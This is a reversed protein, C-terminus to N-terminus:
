YTISVRTKGVTVFEENLWQADDHLLRICGHSANHNPVQGGHLAFAGHFHMCYPMPAGGKPLPFLNSKCEPGKSSYITYTGTVTKCSKGTDACFDKGGSARGWKVLDGQEDYAGWALEALDVKIINTQAIKSPFPSDQTSQDATKSEEENEISETKKPPYANYYYRSKKYQSRYTGHRSYYRTTHDYHRHIRKHQRKPEHQQDYYDNYYYRPYHTNAQVFPMFGFFLACCLIALTIKTLMM